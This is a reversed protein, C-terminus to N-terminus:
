DAIHPSVQVPELRVFTFVRETQRFTPESVAVGNVPAIGQLRSATNVV